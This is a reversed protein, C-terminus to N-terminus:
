PNHELLCLHTKEDEPQEIELLFAKQMERDASLVRSFDIANSKPGFLSNEASISIKWRFKSVKLFVSRRPISRIENKNKSYTGRCM